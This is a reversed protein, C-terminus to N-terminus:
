GAGALPLVIAWLLWADTTVFVPASLGSGAMLVHCRRATGVEQGASSSGTRCPSPRTWRRGSGPSRRAVSTSTVPSPPPTRSATRPVSASRTNPRSLGASRERRARM